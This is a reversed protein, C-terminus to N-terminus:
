EVGRERGVDGGTAGDAIQEVAERMERRVCADLRREGRAPLNGGGPAAVRKMKPGVDGEVVAGAEGRSVDHRTPLAGESRRGLTARRLEEEGDGARFGEVTPRGFGNGTEGRGVIGGDDDREF